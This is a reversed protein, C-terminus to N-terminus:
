RRKWSPSSQSQRELGVPKGQKALPKWSRGGDVSQYLDSSLTSLYLVEGKGPSVALVLAADREGLFFGTSTWTRGGDASRLFGMGERMAYAYLIQPDYPHYAVATVPVGALTQSFPAWSKGGDRSALLGSRTGALLTAKQNPHATLSFVGTLGQAEIRAWVGDQASIWYLGPLGMVNWGYLTMGDATLTMAHLDVAGDLTLPQWTQGGDRSVIVGMPNPRHSSGSPHGSAYMVGSKPDLTFGMFDSRDDGVLEWPKEGGFRILGEHTAIYLIRPDRPDVALGHIHHLQSIPTFRPSAPWAEWGGTLSVLGLIWTVAVLKLLWYGIHKTSMM